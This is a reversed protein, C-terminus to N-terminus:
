NEARLPIFGRRFIDQRSFFKEVAIYEIRNM